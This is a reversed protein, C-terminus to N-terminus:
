WSREPLRDEISDVGPALIFDFIQGLIIALLPDPFEEATGYAGPIDAGLYQPDPVILRLDICLGM